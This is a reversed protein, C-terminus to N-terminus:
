HKGCRQLALSVHYMCALDNGCSEIRSKCPNAALFTRAEDGHAAAMEVRQSAKHKTALKRIAKANANQPILLASVAIFLILTKM